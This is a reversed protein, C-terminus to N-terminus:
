VTGSVTIQRREAHIVIELIKGNGQPLPIFKFLSRGVLEAENYEFTFKWKLGRTADVRPNNIHHFRPYLGVGPANTDIPDLNAVGVTNFQLPWNPVAYSYPAAPFRRAIASQVNQGDWIVLKPINMTGTTLLLAKDFDNIVPYLGAFGSLLDDEVGDNRFRAMGFPLVTDRSKRQLVSPPSNWEVIANYRTNAENGVADLPDAQYEFKGFAPLDDSDWEYCVEGVLRKEARLQAPDVWAQAGVLKDRRELRVKTGEVRWEGNFVLAIEDMFVDGTKLPLNEYITAVSDSPAIGRRSPAFLYATNFYESAPDLFISSEFTLGCKGCVNQVYSRVLPSPHRRGCGIIAGLVKDRLNAWEELVNTTSDGDFDIRGINVGPLTNVAEIIANVVEVIVMVVLVVPYLVVYMIQIVLGLYLLTKHLWEPRLEDCYVFKPHTAQQFGNWNDAVLTSSFCDARRTEETEQIAQGQIHCEGECWDVGSGAIVGDFVLERPVACTDFIKIRVTRRKGDAAEVLQTKLLRWADGYFTLIGSVAKLPGGASGPGNRLSETITIGDEGTIDQQSVPLDNLEIAYISM